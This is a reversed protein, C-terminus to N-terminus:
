FSVEFRFDKYLHKTISYELPTGDSLNAFKEVEIMFEGRRIGLIDTERQSSLVGRIRVLKTNFTLLLDEKLYAYVSKTLNKLSLNPLISVPLYTEEISYPKKDLFRSRVIHYVYEEQSIHLKDAIEKTPLSVSFTHIKSEVHKEGVVNFLGDNPGVVKAEISKRIVETGYGSRALLFGENVLMNLAKRVTIKSVNYTQALENGSPLKEGIIYVENQIKEKIDNYVALYKPANNM